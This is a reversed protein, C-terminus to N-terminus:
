EVSHLLQFPNLKKNYKYLPYIISVTFLFIPVFFLFLFTFISFSPLALSTTMTKNIIGNIIWNSLFSLLTSPIFTFCASIISQLIYIKSIDTQTMGLAKYIAIQKKNSSISESSFKFGLLLGLLLLFVSLCLIITKLLNYNEKIYNIMVKHPSEIQLNKTKLFQINKLDTSTKNSLKLLIHNTQRATYQELIESYLKESVYLIDEENSTIHIPITINSFELLGEGTDLSCQIEYDNLNKNIQISDTFYLTKDNQKIELDMIVPISDFFTENVFVATHIGQNLADIEDFLHKSVEQKIQNKYYSYNFKTDIIGVIKYQKQNIYFPVSELDSFTQISYSTDEISYGLTKYTQFIYDTLVIENEKNPFRGESLTYPLTNLNKQNLVIIGSFWGDALYSTDISFLSDFETYLSNELAKCTEIPIIQKQLTPKYDTDTITSDPSSFTIFQEDFNKVSNYLIHDENFQNMTITSGVLSLSFITAFLLFIYFKINQSLNHFVDTLLFKFSIAYKKINLKETEQITDIPNSDSLVSGENLTIVRDAFLGVLTTDHSVVIVLKTKSIEKLLELIMTANTNDLSSTPEDAIVINPNKLLARAISVRQQEGGSLENPYKHKHESLGFQQLISDIRDQQDINQMNLPLSLNELVTKNEILCYDQFVFGIETNRYATLEKRSLDKLNVDKYFVNGQYDTDLGSIINILTSKGSGSKGTLLIFGKNEIKLSVSHLAPFHQGKKTIYTKYIQELRM